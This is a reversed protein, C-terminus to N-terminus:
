QPLIGKYSFFFFLALATTFVRLSSSLRSPPLFRSQDSSPHEDFFFDFTKGRLSWIRVPSSLVSTFWFAPFLAPFLCLNRAVLFSRLGVFFFFYDQSSSPPFVGDAPPSNEFGLSTRM